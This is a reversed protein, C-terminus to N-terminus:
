WRAHRQSVTWCRRQRLPPISAAWGPAPTAPLALPQLLSSCGSPLRDAEPLLHLKLRHCCTDRAGACSCANRPLIGSSRLQAAAHVAAPLMIRFGQAGSLGQRADRSLTQMRLSAGSYLNRSLNWTQVSAWRTKEPPLGGASTM